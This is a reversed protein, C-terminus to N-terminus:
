LRKALDASRFWTKQSTLYGYEAGGAQSVLPVWRGIKALVLKDVKVDDAASLSDCTNPTDCEITLPPPLPPVYESSEASDSEVPPGFIQEDSCSSRDDLTSHPIFVPLGERSMHQAFSRLCMAMQRKFFPLDAFTDHQGEEIRIRSTWKFVYEQHKNKHTDTQDDFTRQIHKGSIADDDYAMEANEEVYARWKVATPHCQRECVKKM